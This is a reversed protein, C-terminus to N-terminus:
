HCHYVGTMHDTHCGQGNTGGGHAFAAASLVAFIAAAILKKM